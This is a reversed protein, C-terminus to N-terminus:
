EEAITKKLFAVFEEWDQRPILEKDTDVHWTLNFCRCGVKDETPRYKYNERDEFSIYAYEVGAQKILACDKKIKDLGGALYSGSKKVELAIVVQEPEFVLEMWPTANTRPILLDIECPVERIFVDRRSAAIGEELLAARLIEIAAAGGFKTPCSQGFETKARRAREVIQTGSQWTSM